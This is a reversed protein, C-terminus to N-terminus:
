ILDAERAGVNQANLRIESNPSPKRSVSTFAHGPYSAPAKKRRKRIVDCSRLFIESIRPMMALVEDSNNRKIKM